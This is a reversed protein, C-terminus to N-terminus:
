ASSQEEWQEQTLGFRRQRQQYWKLASDFVAENFDPWLTETFYMETYALNWLLFNSIRMEGGTRIFLDPDPLNGLMLERALLKEDIDDMQLKGDQVQTMLKRMAQTIDWRGGYGAAVVLRMGSNQETLTQGARMRKVIEKPFPELNGIFQLKVNNRHLVDIESALANLFLEMLRGVESEPRQWNESSFAFLTLIRVGKQASIEIIKRAANLGAKHGAHRPLMRRKAWRGNGDMIIAVHRPLDPLEAKQKDRRDPM